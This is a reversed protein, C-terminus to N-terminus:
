AQDQKRNRRRAKIKDNLMVFPTGIVAFVVGIGGLVLPGGILWALVETYDPM